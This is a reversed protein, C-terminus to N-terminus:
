EVPNRVLYRTLVDRLSFSVTMIRQLSESHTLIMKLKAELKRTISAPVKDGENTLPAIGRALECDAASVTFVSIGFLLASFLNRIKIGM